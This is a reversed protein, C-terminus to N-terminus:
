IGEPETAIRKKRGRAIGPHYGFDYKKARESCRKSYEPATMPYDKPLNWKKRYQEPSMRHYGRLYPKLMKVQKGDELCILYEPTISQDIPVAPKLPRVSANKPTHPKVRSALNLKGNRYDILSGGLSETVTTILTPLDTVLVNNKGVYAAVVNATLTIILNATDDDSTGSM